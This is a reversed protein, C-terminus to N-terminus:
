WSGLLALLRLFRTVYKWKVSFFVSDSLSLTEKYPLALIEAQVM